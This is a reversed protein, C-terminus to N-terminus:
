NFDQLINDFTSFPQAGVLKIYGNDNGIFFTPTGNVGHNSGEVLDARVEDEMGALSLCSNFNVMDLSLELGYMPMTSDSWEGQRDFLMDHYEWFKGQEDACEAAIHASVANPHMPLPYDKYVFKVKGTDVYREEILPLTEDYFRACFPCEFDSFEIITITADPDGKTPEGIAIDAPLLILDNRIQPEAHKQHPVPQPEPLDQPKEYDGKYYKEQVYLHKYMMDDNSAVIGGLFSATIVSTFMLLLTYRGIKIDTRKM